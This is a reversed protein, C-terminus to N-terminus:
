GFPLVDPVIIPSTTGFIQTLIHLLVMIGVLWTVVYMLVVTVNWFTEDHLLLWLRGTVGYQNHPHQYHFWHNPHITMHM